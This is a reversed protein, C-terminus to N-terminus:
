WSICSNYFNKPSFQNNGRLLLPGGEWFIRCFKVKLEESLKLFISLMFILWFYLLFNISIQYLSIMFCWGDGCSLINNFYNQYTKDAFNHTTSALWTPPPVQHQSLPPPTLAGLTIIEITPFKKLYQRTINRICFMQWSWPFIIDISFYYIIKFCYM